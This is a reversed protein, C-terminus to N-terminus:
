KKELSPSPPNMFNYNYLAHESKIPVRFWGWKNEAMWFRELSDRYINVKKGSVVDTFMFTVFKMPRGGLLRKVGGMLNPSTLM